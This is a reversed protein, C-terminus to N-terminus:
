SCGTSLANRMTIYDTSTTKDANKTTPNVTLIVKLQPTSGSVPSYCSFPTASTVSTVYTLRHTTDACTTGTSRQLSGSNVCWTVTGSAHDCQSPLTLYVGASSSLLAASSACRADYELRDFAVRVGQQSTMRATADASAREGSVFVNALGGLVIGMVVMTVILEVLSFGSDGQIHARMAFSKM